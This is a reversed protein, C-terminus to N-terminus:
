SHTSSYKWEVLVDEHRPIVPVVKGEGKGKVRDGMYFLNFNYNEIYKKTKVSIPLCFLGQVSPYCCANGSNVKDYL